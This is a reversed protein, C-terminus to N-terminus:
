SNTKTPKRKATKDVMNPKKPAKGVLKGIERTQVGRKSEAHQAAMALDLLLEWKEASLDPRYHEGWGAALGLAAIKKAHKTRLFAPLAKNIERPDINIQFIEKAIQAYKLTLPDFEPDTALLPALTERYPLHDQVPVGFRMFDQRLSEDDIAGTAQLVAKALSQADSGERSDRQSIRMPILRLDIKRAGVSAISHAVTGIGDMNQQNLVFCLVVTDPLQMTCVGASDAFGTRSDILVIDYHQKCWNRWQELVFGGAHQGIFADWSFNALAAAFSKGQIQKSGPGILDLCANQPLLPWDAEVLSRVCAAFPAGQEFRQGHAKLKKQDTEETVISQWECLVDLVGPAAMTQELSEQGLLGRFYYALGPAELDWDMLLVRKGNLAALFGMNALAMTRGVGGKFSYFTYIDGMM